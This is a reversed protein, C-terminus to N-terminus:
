KKNRENLADIVSTLDILEAKLNQHHEQLTNNESILKRTVPSEYYANRILVVIVAVVLSAALYGAFNLFVDMWTRKVREYRCTKTDYTYKIRAM